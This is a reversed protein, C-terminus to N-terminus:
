VISISVRLQYWFCCLICCFVGVMCWCFIGALRLMSKNWGDLKEGYAFMGIGIGTLLIITCAIGGWTMIVTCKHVVVMIPFSLFVCFIMSILIAAWADALDGIWEAVVSMRTQNVVTVYKDVLNAPMTDKNPVCYVALYQHSNYRQYTAELYDPV